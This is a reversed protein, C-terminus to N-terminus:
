NPVTIVARGGKELHDRIFEFYRKPSYVHELSWNMRIMGFLQDQPIEEIDHWVEVGEAALSERARDHIEVGAVKTIRRYSLLAGNRGWFHASAGAGCGIDLM